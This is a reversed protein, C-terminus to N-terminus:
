ESTSETPANEALIKDRAQFFDGDLDMPTPIVGKTTAYRQELAEVNDLQNLEDRLANITQQYQRELRDKVRGMTQQRQSKLKQEEFRIITDRIGQTYEQEGLIYNKGFHMQKLFTLQLEQKLPGPSLALNLYEGIFGPDSFGLIQRMKWASVEKSMEIASFTLREDKILYADNDAVDEWTGFHNYDTTFHLKGMSAYLEVPEMALIGDLRAQRLIASFQLRHTYPGHRAGAGPDFMPRKERLNRKFIHPKLFSDVLIRENFGQEKEYDSLLADLSKGNAQMEGQLKELASVCYAKNMLVVKATALQQLIKRDGKPYRGELKRTIDEVRQRNEENSFIGKWEQPQLQEQDTKLLADLDKLLKEYDQLVRKIYSERQQIDTEVDNIQRGNQLYLANRGYDSPAAEHKLTYSSLRKSEEEINNLLGRCFDQNQKLQHYLFQLESPNLLEQEKLKVDRLYIQPQLTSYAILLYKECNEIKLQINANEQLINQLYVSTEKIERLLHYDDQKSQIETKLDKIKSELDHWSSIKYTNKLRKMSKTGNYLQNRTSIIQSAQERLIPKLDDFSPCAKLVQKKVQKLKSQQAAIFNDLNNSSTSGEIQDALKTALDDLLTLRDRFQETLRGKFQEASEETQVEIKDINGRLECFYKLTNYPVIINEHIEQLNKEYENFLTSLREHEVEDLKIEIAKIDSKFDQWTDIGDTDRIQNIDAIHQDSQSKLSTIQSTEQPTLPKIKKTEEFLINAQEQTSQQEAIFDDLNHSTTTGRLKKASSALKTARDGLTTLRDRFQETSEGTQIEIADAEKRLASLASLVESTAGIKAHATQYKEIGEEILASRKSEEPRFASTDTHTKPLNAHEPDKGPSGPDSLTFDSLNRTVDAKSLEASSSQDKFTIMDSGIFLSTEKQDQPPANHTERRHDGPM